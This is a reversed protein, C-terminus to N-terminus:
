FCAPKVFRELAEVLGIIGALNETGAGNMKM